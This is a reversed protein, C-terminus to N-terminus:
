ALAEQGSSAFRMDWHRRMPRLMRQLGQLVHPEDDVFLICKKM